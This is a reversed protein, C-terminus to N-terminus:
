DQWLKWPAKKDHWYKNLHELDRMTDMCQWYKLHPYCMLEGQKSLAELPETELACKDGSILDFIKRNFVYFGGNILHDEERTKEAFQTVQNGKLHFNGFRGPSYVGTLTAIKGHRQHFEVLEKINVDGIGDGYTLMFTDEKIYDQIRKLRGGTNTKLGTQALTVKIRDSENQIHPEVTIEGRGSYSLTFDNNYYPYNLFYEKIMDGKYGLCLIFEHFGFHMYLKLIHWLMPHSGVRIMPKPVYETQTGFRTGYGGALIVVKM